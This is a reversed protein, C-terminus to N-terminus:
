GNKAGRLQRKRRIGTERYYTRQALYQETCEKNFEADNYWKEMCSVMTANEKRCKFVVSFGERKACMGFAEVQEVCKEERTRDRMIQPILIEKEVVRLTKDNPDGLGQPGGSLSHKLVTNKRKRWDLWGM